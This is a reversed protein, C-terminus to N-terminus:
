KQLTQKIKEKLLQAQAQLVKLRVQQVQEDLTKFAGTPATGPVGPVSAPPLSSPTRPVTEVKEKLVLLQERLLMLQKAKLSEEVSARVNKQLIDYEDALKQLEARLSLLQVGRATQIAASIEQMRNEIREAEEDVARPRLTVITRELGAIQAELDRGLAERNLPAVTPAAALPPAAAIQKSVKLIDEQILKARERVLKLQVDRLQEQVSSISAVGGSTSVFFLLLLVSIVFARRNDM